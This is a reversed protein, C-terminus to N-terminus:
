LELDGRATSHARPQVPSCALHRQLVFYCYFVGVVLGPLTVQPSSNVSLM